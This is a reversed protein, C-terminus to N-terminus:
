PQPGSDPRPDPEPSSEDAGRRRRIETQKAAYEDAQLGQVRIEGGIEAERRALERQIAEIRAAADARAQELELRKRDLEAQVRVREALESREMQWRLTGMVVQGRGSYVDALSVGDDSLILERVQNSHATGRSKVITLARNREGGQVVYTLHIWTDAVTSIRLETSETEPNAGELLSTAVMTISESKTWYLM